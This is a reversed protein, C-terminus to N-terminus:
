STSDRCSFPLAGTAGVSPAGAAYALVGPCVVTVVGVSARARGEPSVSSIADAPVTFDFTPTDRSIAFTAPLMADICSVPASSPPDVCLGWGWSAARGGPDFALADLHVSEGPAAYPANARVALVRLGTVRSGPDFDSGCASLLALAGSLGLVVTRM